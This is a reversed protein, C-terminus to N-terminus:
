AAYQKIAILKGDEADLTVIKAVRKFGFPTVQQGLFKSTEPDGVSFTLKWAPLEAGEATEFAGSEVEELRIDQTEALDPMIERIYDIAKQTAERPNLM